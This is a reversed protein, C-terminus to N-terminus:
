QNVYTDSVPSPAEVASVSVTNTVPQTAGLNDSTAGGVTVTLTAGSALTPASCYFVTTTPKTCSGSPVITPTVNFTASLPLTDTLQVSTASSQGANNNVTITYTVTKGPLLQNAPSASKVINLSTKRDLTSTVVDSPAVGVLETATVSATNTLVRGVPTLTSSVTVTLVESRASNAAISGNLVCRTPNVTDPCTGNSIGVLTTSAPITDSITVGSADSPGTNTILMTYTMPMGAMSVSSAAFMKFQLGAQRTVTASASASTGLITNSDTYSATNSLVSGSAASSSVVVSLTIVSSTNPALSPLSCRLTAPLPTAMGNCSWGPAVPSNWFGIAPLDDSVVINSVTIANANSITIVYTLPTGAVVADPTADMTIGLNPMGSVVTTTSDSTGSPNEDSKIAATNVVNSGNNLTASLVAGFSIKGSQGPELASTTCSLVRNT